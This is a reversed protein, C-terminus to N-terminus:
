VTILRRHSRAPEKAPPGSAPSSTRSARSEPRASPRNRLHDPLLDVHERLRNSTGEIHVVIAHHLLRELLAAAVVRDSFM